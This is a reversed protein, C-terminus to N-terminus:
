YMGVLWANASAALGAISITAPAATLGAGSTASRPMATSPGFNPEGTSALARGGVTPATTGNMLFGVYYLGGPTVGVGPITGFLNGTGAWATTQDVSGLLSLNGASAQGSDYLCIPNQNAALVLGGSTVLLGLNTVPAGRTAQVAMLNMIGKTPVATAAQMSTPDYSWGNLGNLAFPAAPQAATKFGSM